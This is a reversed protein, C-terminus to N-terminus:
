NGHSADEETADTIWTGNTPHIVFVGRNNDTFWINKHESDFQPMAMAYASYCTCWSGPPRTGDGGPNFYGLEKPNKIDRIDFVRLGQEFASCAMMVPDIRKDTNCYHFNYAFTFDGGYEYPPRWTESVARDNNKLMMIETKVKTVVKPHLEDSIDVFRTGGHGGESTTMAYPIGDKVFNFSQQNIQGDPSELASILRLQPHPKREQIESVDYIGMGDGGLITDGNTPPAGNPGAANGKGGNGGKGAYTTYTWDENVHAIILRKSDM